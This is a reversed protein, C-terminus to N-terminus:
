AGNHGLSQKLRGLRRALLRIRRGSRHECGASRWRCIVVGEVQEVDDRKQGPVLGVDEAYIEIAAAEIALVGASDQETLERVHWLQAPVPTGDLVYTTDGLYRRNKTVTYRAGETGSDSFGAVDGEDREGAGGSGPERLTVASILVRDPDPADFSFLAPQLVEAQVAASEGTATPFYLRLDRLLSGESVIRERVLQRPEFAADYYTSVLATSDPTEVARFYWYHARGGLPAVPEYGYVLGGTLEEVPYYFRPADNRTKACAACLTASLLALAAARRALQSTRRVRTGCGRPPSTRQYPPAKTM